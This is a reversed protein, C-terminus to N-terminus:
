LQPPLDVLPACFEARKALDFRPDTFVPVAGSQQLQRLRLTAHCDGLEAAGVFIARAMAADGQRELLLGYQYFAAPYRSRMAMRYLRALHEEDASDGRGADLLMALATEGRGESRGLVARYLMVARTDDQAKGLGLEFSRGLYYLGQPYNQVAAKELWAAAAVREDDSDARGMLFLGLRAQADALGGEASRTLWYRAKDLDPEGTTGYQYAWALNAQAWGHGQEAAKAYWHLAMKKDLPVGVGRNYLVGLNNQAVANGSQAALRYWHAAQALDAKVNIGREYWAGLRNQAVPDGSEALARTSALQEANLAPVAVATSARWVYQTRLWGRPAGHAAVVTRFTCGRIGALSADDLDPRGSSALMRAEIVKGQEGIRVEVTTKGEARAALAAAPYAPRACAQLDIEMVQQANQVQDSSARAPLVFTAAAVALLITKM